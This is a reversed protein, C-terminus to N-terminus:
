QKEQESIWQDITTAFDDFVTPSALDFKFEGNRIHMYNMDDPPQVMASLDTDKIHYRVSWEYGNRPMCIIGEIVMSMWTWDPRSDYVEQLIKLAAFEIDLRNTM